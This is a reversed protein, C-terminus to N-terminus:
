FPGYKLFSGILKLIPRLLVRNLVYYSTKVVKAWFYKSLNNENLMTRAMEQLNINKRGVVRNQQPTRPASFNHNIGHENCYDEFDLNENEGM